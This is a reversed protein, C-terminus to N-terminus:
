ESLEKKRKKFKAKYVGEIFDTGAYGALIAFRPDNVVYLGAVMGLLGALLISAILYEITVKMRHQTPARTQWKLIGIFARILGGVFGAGITIVIESVMFIIQTIGM